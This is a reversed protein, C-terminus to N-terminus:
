KFDIRRVLAIGNKRPVIRGTADVTDLVSGIGRVPHESTTTKLGKPRQDTSDSVEGERKAMM